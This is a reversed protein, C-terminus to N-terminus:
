KNLFSFEYKLLKFLQFCHWKIIERIGIISIMIKEIRAFLSFQFTKSQWMLMLIWNCASKAQNIAKCLVMKSVNRNKITEIMLRHAELNTIIKIDFAHWTRSMAGTVNRYYYYLVKDVCGVFGNSACLYQVVFLGDEKYFIDEKFRLNNSKIISHKFMRNWLYRQWDTNTAEYFGILNDELSEIMKKPIVVCDEYSLLDIKKFGCMSSDVQEDFAHYLDELYTSAIQDDADVFSIYDGTVNKLGINRAASVGRHTQQFLHFRDDKAIYKDIIRLSQDTSGDDVLIVEFDTYTQGLISNLCDPLYKEANYVPVIISIKPTM